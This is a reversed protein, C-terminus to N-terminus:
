EVEIVVFEDGPVETEFRLPMILCVGLENKITLPQRPGEPQYATCAGGDNIIGHTIDILGIKYYTDNYLMLYKYSGGFEKKTLKYGKSKAEAIVKNFDINKEVGSFRILRSVDPYNGKETDFLEIEGVDETTLALSWSNTFCIYDKGDVTVKGPKQLAERSQSIYGFYKKMATYRKKADPKSKLSEEYIEDQLASRLEEIRGSDLLELVKVSRM